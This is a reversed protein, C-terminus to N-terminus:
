TWRRSRLLLALDRERQVVAAAAQQWGRKSGHRAAAALGRYALEVSRLQAVLPAEGAAEGPRRELRVRAARYLAALESASAAQAAPRRASLLERRVAARRQDLERVVPVVTPTAPTSVRLESQAPAAASPASGGNGGTNGAAFGAVASLLLTLGIWM